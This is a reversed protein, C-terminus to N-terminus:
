EVLFKKVVNGKNTALQLLYLGQPLQLQIALNNLEGIQVTQGLMNTIRYNKASIGEPIAVQLQHQAPNPFL